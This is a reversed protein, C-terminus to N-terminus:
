KYAETLVFSLPMGKCLVIYMPGSAHNNPNVWEKMETYLKMSLSVSICCIGREYMHWGRISIVDNFGDFLM